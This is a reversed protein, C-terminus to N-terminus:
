PHISRCAILDICRPRRDTQHDVAEGANAGDEPHLDAVVEDLPPAAMDPEMFFAALLVLDGTVVVEFLIQVRVEGGGANAAIEVPGSKKTM